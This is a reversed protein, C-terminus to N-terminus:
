FQKLCILPLKQYYYQYNQDQDGMMLFVSFLLM